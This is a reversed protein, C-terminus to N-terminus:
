VGPVGPFRDLLALGALGACAFALFLRDLFGARFGAVSQFRGEFGRLIMAEYVRLSRDYSRALVMGLMQGVTRYTHLNSRPTFGRLRAATNLRRHEDAIVHIYRYTFLFLFVLKPPCRLKELAHGIVPSPMSTVLALFLCLIANAKLTALTALEVGERSFHLPGWAALTEGPMTPPVTLWLFVLFLNVALLRRLLAGLPPRSLALLVAATALGLAATEPRRLVALCVAGLLAAALRFRPDLRHLFTSGRAFPEDFM